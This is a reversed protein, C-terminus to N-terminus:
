NRTISELFIKARETQPNSFFAEPDAQEVISGSDMFIVRDAVHRAFNMEHTVILMTMGDSALETMVNLVEGIMEPDLASTPEDFLMVKPHMALARAIAARQQQGGSLQAPVKKAQDAVGVRELLKMAEERAERRPMKLVDVPALTMNDIITMHSFLNFAQFVMGIKSRLEALQRGEEPIPVGELLIQGSDITELRNITRCLTSKGSGSPGIIVVVEGKNVKLSIDKLVHLDGFHKNINKLEIIPVENQTM